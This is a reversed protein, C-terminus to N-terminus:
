ISRFELEDIKEIPWVVLYNRHIAIVMSCRYIEYTNRLFRKPQSSEASLAFTRTLAGFANALPCCCALWPFM